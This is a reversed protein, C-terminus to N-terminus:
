RPTTGTAPALFEIQVNRHDSILRPNAREEAVTYGRSGLGKVSVIHEPPVGLHRLREAVARARALSLRDNGAVSGTSADTHGTIKLRHSRARAAVDRLAVDAAADIVASNVRFLMSSPLVVQEKGPQVQPLPVVPVENRSVPPAQGVLQADVVCEQAGAATCVTTWLAIVRERLPPTLRPQSGAVDGLGVFVVRWGSLPPLWKDAALRAVTSEVDFDWGLERFDLPSVTSVGQSLVYVVGPMTERRVAAELLGLTDLGPTSTALGAVADSIRQVNEDLLRGRYSGREVQGNARFPTIPMTSFVTAERGGVVLRVCAYDSQGAMRLEHQMGASTGPAFEASTATAAIVIPGTVQSEHGAVSTSVTSPVFAGVGGFCVPTLPDQVSPGVSCAVLFIAVVIALFSNIQHGNPHMQSGSAPTRQAM